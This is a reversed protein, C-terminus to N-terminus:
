CCGMVLRAIYALGQHATCIHCTDGSFWTASHFVMHSVVLNPM